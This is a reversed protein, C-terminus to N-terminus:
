SISKFEKLIIFTSVVEKLSENKVSMTDYYLLGSENVIM